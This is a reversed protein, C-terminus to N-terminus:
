AVAFCYCVINYPLCKCGDPKIISNASDLLVANGTHWIQAGDFDPRWGCFGSDDRGSLRDFNCDVISAQLESQVLHAVLLLQAILWWRM